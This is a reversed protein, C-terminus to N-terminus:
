LSLRLPEGKIIGTSGILEGTDRPQSRGPAVLYGSQCKGFSTRPDQSICGGKVPELEFHLNYAPGSGVNEEWLKGAREVVTPTDHSTLAELALRASSYRQDAAKRLWNEAADENAPLGDGEQYRLGLNYQAAANGWNASRRVWDTAKTCSQPVYRGTEYLMGMILAASDDGYYAQRRLARIEYRSLTEVVSLAARDTVQRHSVQVPPVLRFQDAKRVANEESQHNMRSTAAVVQFQEQHWVQLLTLAVVILLVLLSAGAAPVARRPSLTVRVKVRYRAFSELRNKASEAANWLSRLARRWSQGLAEKSFGSLPRYTTAGRLGQSASALASLWSSQPESSYRGASETQLSQRCRAASIATSSLWSHARQFAQSARWACHGVSATGLEWQKRVVPWSLFSQRATRFSERIKIGAIEKSKPGAAEKAGVAATLTGIMQRAASQNGWVEAAKSSKSLAPMLRATTTDREPVCHTEVHTKPPEALTELAPQRNRTEQEHQCQLVWAAALLTEFSSPDLTPRHNM